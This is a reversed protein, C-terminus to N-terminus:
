EITIRGSKTIKGIKYTREKFKELKERVKKEDKQSIIIIMGIGMNFVKFMEEEKINGKEQLISFIPPIEWVKKIRAGLEDPLVRILNGKIGGGTINAIGKIEIGEDFLSLISKVYIKTPTLLENGWKKGLKHSYRELFNKREKKTKKGKFIIKRVLSYGNSHLGSSALGILIDGPQVKEKKILNKKKVWGLAFGAVEYEGRKYMGPMEATEGGILTCKAQNCGEVIGEILRLSKRKDLYSTAIYDMFILPYAGGCILDNVNMAVVDIGTNFYDGFLSAILLKTGVGDSTLAVYGEEKPLSYVGAFSGIGSIINKDKVRQIIKKIKKVFDDGEEINVGAKKYTLSDM